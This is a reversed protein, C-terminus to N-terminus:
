GESHLTTVLFHHLLCHQDGFAQSRVTSPSPVSHHYKRDVTDWQLQEFFYVSDGYPWSNVCGFDLFKDRTLARQGAFVYLIFFLFCYAIICGIVEFILGTLTQWPAWGM